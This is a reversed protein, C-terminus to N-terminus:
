SPVKDDFFAQKKLFDIYYTKGYIESVFYLIPGSHYIKFDSLTDSLLLKGGNVKIDNGTITNTITLPQSKDIGATKVKDDIYKKNVLSTDTSGSTPLLYSGNLTLNGNLVDITNTSPTYSLKDQNGNVNFIFKKGSIINYQTDIFNDILLRTKNDNLYVAYLKPIDPINVYLSQGTLKSNSVINNGTITNTITLPKTTDLGQSPLAEIAESIANDVYGKNVLTGSTKGNTMLYSENTIRITGTTIQGSASNTRTEFISKYNAVDGKITEDQQKLNTIDQKIATLDGNITSISSTNTSINTTNQEVKPKLDDVESTLNTIQTTHTSINQTNQQVQETLDPIDGIKENIETIQANITTVRNNLDSVDVGDVLGTTVIDCDIYCSNNVRLDDVVLDQTVIEGTNEALIVGNFIKVM